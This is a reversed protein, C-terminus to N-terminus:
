LLPAYRVYSVARAPAESNIYGYYTGAESHWKYLESSRSCAYSIIARVANLPVSLKASIDASNAGDCFLRLIEGAVEDNVTPRHIKYRRILDAASDHLMRTLRDRDDQKTKAILPDSLNRM